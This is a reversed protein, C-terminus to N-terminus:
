LRCYADVIGLHTGDYEQRFVVKAINEEHLLRKLLMMNQMPEIHDAVARFRQSPYSMYPLGSSSRPRVEQKQIQVKGLEVPPLYEALKALVRPTRLRRDNGHSGGIRGPVPRPHGFQPNRPIEPLRQLEICKELEPGYHTLDNRL